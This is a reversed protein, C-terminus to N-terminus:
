PQREIQACRLNLSLRQQSDNPTLPIYARSRCLGGPPPVPPGKRTPKSAKALPECESRHSEPTPTTISECKTRVSMAGISAFSQPCRQEAPSKSPASHSPFDPLRDPSSRRSSLPSNPISRSKEDVPRFPSKKKPSSKTQCQPNGKLTQATPTERVASILRCGSRSSQVSSCSM